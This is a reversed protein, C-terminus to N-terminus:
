GAAAERQSLRLPPLLGGEALASIAQREADDLDVGDPPGGLLVTVVCDGCTQGRVECSDCDILVAV